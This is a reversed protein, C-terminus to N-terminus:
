AIRRALDSGILPPLRNQAMAGLLSAIFGDVIPFAREPEGVASFRMLIGDAVYGDMANLLRAQRQDAATQPIREGLRAWYTICEVRDQFTAVVHRGPIAANRGVLIMVSKAARLNYGVAPYCSEPRHLQLLDSQTDGYAALMMVASGDEDRFYTRAVTESYLARALQGAQDPSVLQADEASWGTIARPIIDAIKAKGLLVLRQRPRLYEAAGLGALGLSGLILDRRAIM